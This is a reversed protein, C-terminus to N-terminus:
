VESVELLRSALEVGALEEGRYAARRPEALYSEYGDRGAFSLLHVETRGDATRRRAEDGGVSLETEPEREHEQRTAM